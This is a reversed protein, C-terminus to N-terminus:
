FMRTITVIGSSGALSTIAVHTIEPAVRYVALGAPFIRRTGTTVDVNSDGFAMRCDGSSAVEVIVSDPPLAIRQNGASIVLQVVADDDPALAQVATNNRDTPMHPIRNLTAM